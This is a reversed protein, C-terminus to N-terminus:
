RRSRRRTLSLAALAALALGATQPEPVDGVRVAWAYYLNDTSSSGQDGFATFFHMAEGEYLSATGTWYAWAALDQFPGTQTLGDFANNGLSTYFLYGLESNLGSNNFGSDTSGDDSFDLNLATGNVPTLGPLRWDDRGGFELAEAWAKADSWSRMGGLSANRVWTLGTATDYVMDNNGGRLQLSAQAPALLAGLALCAFASKLTKMTM